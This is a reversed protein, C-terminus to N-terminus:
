APAPPEIVEVLDSVEVAPHQVSTVVQIQDRQPDLRIVKLTPLSLLLKSLSFTQTVETDTVDLIIIAPQAAIIRTAADTQAPDVVILKVNQLIQRLRSAVGDAFLSHGSLIAVCM